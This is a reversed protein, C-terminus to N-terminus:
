KNRVREQMEIWRIAEKAAKVWEPIRGPQDYSAFVARRM